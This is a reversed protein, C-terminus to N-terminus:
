NRMFVTNSLTLTLPNDLIRGRVSDKQMMLTVDVLEPALSNIYSNGAEDWARGQVFFVNIDRCVIKQSQLSASNDWIRKVLYSVTNLTLVCYEIQWDLQGAAGWEVFGLSDFVTGDGDADVPVQFVISLGSDSQMSLADGVPLTNIQLSDKSALRLEKVFLSMGTRAKSNLDIKAMSEGFFRNQSVIATFLTGIVITYIGVSVITEILTFGNNKIKM